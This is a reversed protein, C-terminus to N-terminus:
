VVVMEFMMWYCVDIVLYKFLVLLQVDVGYVIFVVINVIVRFLICLKDYMKQKDCSGGRNEWVDVVLCWWIVKVLGFFYVELVFFCILWFLYIVIIGCNM